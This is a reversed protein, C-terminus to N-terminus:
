EAQLESDHNPPLGDGCRRGADVYIGDSLNGGLLNYEDPQEYGGVTDTAPGCFVFLFRNICITM